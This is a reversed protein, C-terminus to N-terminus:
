GLEKNNTIDTDHFLQRAISNYYKVLQGIRNFVGVHGIGTVKGNADVPAAKLVDTADITSVHAHSAYEYLIAMWGM